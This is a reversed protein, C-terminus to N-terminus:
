TGVPTLFWLGGSSTGSVTAGSGFVPQMATLHKSYKLLVGARGADSGPEIGPLEEKGESSRGM